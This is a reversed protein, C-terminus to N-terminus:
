ILRLDRARAVAQTRNSVGLKAFITNTHTKVTSLAIVLLVAVEANSRGEAILRLVELERESLPDYASGQSATIREYQAQVPTISPAHVIHEGGPGAYPTASISRGGFSAALRRAYDRLGPPLAHGADDAGADYAAGAAGGEREGDADRTGAYSSIVARLLRLMAPGEDVFSRVYNEPAALALARAITSIAGARDASAELALARVILIELVSSYRHKRTADALMRDLMRMTQLLEGAGENGVEDGNGRNRSNEMNGSNERKGKNGGNGRSGSVGEVGVNRNIAANEAQAIWVRALVLYEEEREFPIEDGVQLGSEAAWATAAELNGEALSLQAGASESRALMNPHYGRRQALEALAALTERAAAHEGRAHQIRALALYGRAVYDAGVALTSPLLRMAEAIYGDAVDPENWERHLDGLGIYYAPTSYLGRPGELDGPIVISDLERYAAAADRLRGQMERLRAVNLVAGLTGFLNGTARVPEVAAVALHEPEGTVDGTVRFGRAVHLGATTRAILESEPLNSLVQEGYRVCSALDGTYLAINARIAAAHGRIDRAEAPPMGPKICREADRVRAEAAAFDNTFLLALAHSIYLRPHAPLLTEPLRGLWNLATQVQGGVIIGISHQRILHAARSRDQMSLAHQVAENILGRSEYWNSAREHLASIGADGAPSPGPAPRTLQSLRQRLLDAFLHHYRYWRREEDLPVVFLNARELEELMGQSSVRGPGWAEWAESAARVSLEVALELEEGHPPAALVADCLPACMRDLVSTCLLFFQVRAPQLEFVESALYDVIYRNSGSFNSIFSAPDPHDRLALAALQLGAIWGETREELASLDGPTLAPGLASNLFEAAENFTFRLDRAHLETLEGGARLRPLPLAPDSRTVIVIHLQPPLGDLLRAVGAHIEANTVAHYDELVLAYDRGPSAACIKSFANLVSALISQIAPLQPSRLLALAPASIGPALTDLAALLYSWFLLPDNDGADLSVWAVPMARGAPAARWASLLTTKGFGAPAAILTLKGRLGAEVRELLRPRPVLHARAPPVTLKTSLLNPGLAPAPGGREDQQVNRKETGPAASTAAAAHAPALKAAVHNLLSLTLDSTKGLYARHLAGGVTVYAKWYAGGRGRPEKRATFKGSRSTFAFSNAGELWSFWEATGVVICGEDNGAFTLRNEYVRPTNRAMGRGVGREM